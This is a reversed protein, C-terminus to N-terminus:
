ERLIADEAINCRTARTLVSTESSLQAEIMLSVLIPSSSVDWFVGNKMNVATFIEFGRNKTAM